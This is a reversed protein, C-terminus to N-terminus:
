DKNAQQKQQEIQDIAFDTKEDQLEKQQEAWEKSADIQDQYYRDASGIMSGYTNELESLADKKDSEVKVLRDDGSKAKALNEQERALTAELEALKADYENAM